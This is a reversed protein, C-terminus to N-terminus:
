PHEPGRHTTGDFDAMGAPQLGLARLRDAVAALIEYRANLVMLRAQTESAFADLVEAVSALGGEYKRTVIRHAEAAQAAATRTVDLKALAAGLTLETRELDVAANAAAGARDAQAEARRAEALRLDAVESAGSFPTWSAMIGVTWNSAGAFPRAGSNLDQRAFGFVRPVFAARTRALNAAAVGASERVGDVDGRNRPELALAQRAATEIASDTPFGSTPVVPRSPDGGLLVTLRRIALVSDRSADLRAADLEAARTAALLADSKTVLGAELMADAQQVHAHAAQTAVALTTAHSAALTAGYYAAIVDVETSVATWTEGHRAAAAARNGARAAMWGDLVLLPQEVILAGTFNNTAAPYNLRQPDFDAATIRQQRLSTGFAGVPDTTRLFGADVRVTPLLGRRAALSGADAADHRAAAVRNSFAHSTARQLADRLTLSDQAAAPRAIAIAVAVM